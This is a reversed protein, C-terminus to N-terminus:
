LSIADKRFDSSGIRVNVLAARGAAFARALAGPLDAVREVQVLKTAAPVKEGYGLRCDLPPASGSPATAGRWRRREPAASPAPTARPCGTAPWATSSPRCPRRRWCPRSRERTLTFVHSIGEARLARAVIRGGHLWSM